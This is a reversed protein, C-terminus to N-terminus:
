GALPLAVERCNAPTCQLIEEIVSRIAEIRTSQTQASYSLVLVPQPSMQTTIDLYQRLQTETIPSGNWTLSNGDLRVVKRVESGLASVAASQGWRHPRDPSGNHALAWTLAVAAIILSM